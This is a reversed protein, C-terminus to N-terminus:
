HLKINQPFTSIISRYRCKKTQNQNKTDNKQNLKFNFSLKKPTRKIIKTKNIHLKMKPLVRLLEQIILPNITYQPYM